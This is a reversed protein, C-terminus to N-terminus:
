HGWTTLTDQLDIPLQDATHGLLIYRRHAVLYDPSGQLSGGVMFSLIHFAYIGDENLIKLKECSQRCNDSLEQRQLQDYEPFNQTLYCNLAAYFRDKAIRNLSDFQTRSIHLM